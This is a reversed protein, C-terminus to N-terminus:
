RPPPPPFRNNATIHDSVVIMVNPSLCEDSTNSGVDNEFVWGGTGMSIAVLDHDRYHLNDYGRASTSHPPTLM